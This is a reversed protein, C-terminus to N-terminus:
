KRNNDPLPEPFMTKTVEHSSKGVIEGPEWGYLETAGRNWYTIVDNMDRAVVTDHTLDLLAAQAQLARTREQVRTELEARARQLEIFTRKMRASLWSVLVASVVFLVLPLVHPRDVRFSESPPLFYALALTSLLAAVLGPRGGGFWASVIVALFFFPGM